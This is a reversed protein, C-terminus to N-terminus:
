HKRYVKSLLLFLEPFDILFRYRDSREDSISNNL